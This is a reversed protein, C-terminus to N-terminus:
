QASEKGDPSTGEQEGELVILSFDAYENFLGKISTLLAIRNMRKSADKDMVMCKDFFEDIHKRLSFLAHLAEAYHYKEIADSFAQRADKYGSWLKREADSDFLADSVQGPHEKISQLINSVRRQGIVLKEFYRNHIENALCRIRSMVDFLDDYPIATVAAAIDYRMGEKSLYTNLRGEIFENIRSIVEEKVLKVDFDEQQLFLEISKNLMRSMSFRMSFEDIIRLLGNVCRRLGFPDYSGSPVQGILFDGVLTDIRDGMGVICAEVFTPVEDGPFRPLHHEAIIAAVENEENSRIAYERGIIGELKTFEKGDKIMNTVVDVKSLLSGRKIIELKGMAMEKALFTSLLVLRKSKDLVTGLGAHWEVGKLQEIREAFPVKLDEKWYFCADSLRARLVSNHGKRINEINKSLGNAVGVYVPVIEGEEDLVAFYRQHERMATTLVDRPMELFREDFSGRFLAPYEVLNAVEDLLEADQYLSLTDGLLKKADRVIKHKRENFSLMIHQKKMVNKYDDASSIKIKKAGTFRPGRTYRLSSIGAMQIRISKSGMLVVVWRIPRAFEFGSEEWRMKRPFNIEALITPLVNKIVKRTAAANEKKEIFCAKKGKREGIKIASVQKQLSKAFGQAAKTPKGDADFAQSQPPGFVRHVIREGREEIESFVLALRRPTFYSTAESFRIHASTFAECLLNRFQEAAPQLYASPIEEVGIEVLLSKKM